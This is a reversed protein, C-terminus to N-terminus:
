ETKGLWFDYGGSSGESASRGAFVYASGDKILSYASDSSNTGYFSKWVLGGEKDTKFLVADDNTLDQGYTGAVVYGDSEEVAGWARNSRRNGFTTNWETVGQEDTKYLLVDRGSEGSVVFSGESNQIVNIAYESSSDFVSEWVQEGSSDIKTIYADYGSSEGYYYLTDGVIVFGDDSTRIVDWAVSSRTGPDFAKEWVLDGSSDIKIVYIITEWIKEGAGHGNTYGAVVFGGDGAKSVARATEQSGEGGYNVVWEEEGSSDIKVILFDDPNDDGVWIEGVLLYGGDSTSVADWLLSSEKEQNFVFSKDWEMVGESSTKVVYARENYKDITYGALLYGDGAKTISYAVDESSGGYFKQFALSPGELVEETVEEAPTSQNSTINDASVTRGDPVEGAPVTRGEPATDQACGAVLLVLFIMPVARKM